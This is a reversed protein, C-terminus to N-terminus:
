PKVLNWAESLADTLNDAELHTTAGTKTREVSFTDDGHDILRYGRKELATHFDDDTKPEKKKRPSM